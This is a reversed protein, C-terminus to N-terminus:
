TIFIAEKENIKTVQQTFPFIDEINDEFDSSEPLNLLEQFGYVFASLMLINMQQGLRKVGLPSIDM